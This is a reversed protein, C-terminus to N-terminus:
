EPCISHHKQWRNKLRYVLYFAYILPHQPAVRRRVRRQNKGHIHLDRWQKMWKRGWHRVYHYFPVHFQRVIYELVAIDEIMAIGEACVQSSINSDHMRYNSVIRSVELVDTLTCLQAYLLWDGCLRMNGLVNMDVHMLHERRIIAMSVNYIVNDYLLKKRAFDYGKNEMVSGSVPTPWTEQGNRIHRAQGYVLGCSPHQKAASLLTDLLEPEAWDDSEAIWVWEGHALAVGKAWQHFPSGSNESNYIIQTVHPNDRYTELLSRSDDTSCDDLLILEFDQFTQNLISDIRQRLYAAHNYNPVIVSVTPM